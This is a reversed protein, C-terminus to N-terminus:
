WLRSRPRPRSRRLFRAWTESRQKSRALLPSPKKPSGFVRARALRVACCTTGSIKVTLATGSPLPCPMQHHLGQLESSAYGMMALFTKNASLITGDLGFTIMAHSRDLARLTSRAMPGDVDFM